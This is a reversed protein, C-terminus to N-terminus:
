RGPAEPAQRDAVVITEARLTTGARVDRRIQGEDVAIKGMVLVWAIGESFEAPSLVTARDRIRRPDFVVLDADMGEQLRGKRRLAPVRAELRQAPLLTMKRIAEMLPIARRVRVYESIFRSFAGSARPHNNCGDREGPRGPEIIGDSGIMVWPDRVALEVDEPPIAYAVALQGQIRRARQFGDSDLRSEQCVLQLGDYGIRFRDEWGRSFRASSLYTAWYDYPYVDATVDVGEARAAALYALSAAMSFTGGTSHIHDIHIPVGSRRAYGVVEELAEQNTGGGGYVTSYRVHFFAPAGHRAAVELLAEVEEPTTGPYYELSFSIAMAGERMARDARRVLTAIQEPGAADYPGLGLGVRDAAVFYAAGYHIPPKLSAMASLHTAPRTTGGHLALNTTVGDALKYWMGVANLPYSLPDIFGPAVVMGSADLVREGRLPGP